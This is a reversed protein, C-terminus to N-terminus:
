DMNTVCRKLANSSANKHNLIRRKIIPFLPDNVNLHDYM